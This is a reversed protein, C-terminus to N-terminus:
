KQHVDSAGTVDITGITPNGVYSLNSADSAYTDLKGSADVIGDSAGSLKVTANNVQLNGLDAGSAGSVQLNLNNSTGSLVVNSAGSADLALDHINLVGTANSGGTVAISTDYAGIGIDASSAGSLTLQFDNTSTFGTATGTSAGSLNLIDLEPLSVELKPKSSFNRWFDWFSLKMSVELIGGFDVVKISNFRDQAATISINYSSSPTLSVDFSSGVQVGTFDKFNYQKTESPGNGCATLLLPLCILLSVLLLIAKKM